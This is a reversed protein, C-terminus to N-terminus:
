VTRNQVVPADNVPVVSILAFASASGAHGDSVSYQFGANGNFNALPIFQFSGDQNLTLSGGVVDSIATPFPHEGDVDTDNALVGPAGISLTTDENVSFSDNKATPARNAAALLPFALCNLVAVAIALHKRSLTKM